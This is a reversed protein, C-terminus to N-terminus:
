AADKAKDVKHQIWMQRFEENKRNLAIYADAAAVNTEVINVLILRDSMLLWEVEQALEVAKTRRRPSHLEASPDVALVKCINEGFTSISQTLNDIAAAAPRKKKLSKVPTPSVARRRKRSSPPARCPTVPPKETNAEENPAVPTKEVDSENNIEEAAEDRQPPPSDFASEDWDPSPSRPLRASPDMGTIGQSPRYVYTGHLTVPMIETMKELHVWGHNKFPKADKYIKIFKAWEPEMEPTIDAGRTDSWTWGSQSKIAQIARFIRRLQGWKTLCSSGTKPGGETRIADVIPAVENFTPMKFTASDGGASRHDCLFVVFAIEDALTWKANDTKSKETGPVTATNSTTKKSKAM